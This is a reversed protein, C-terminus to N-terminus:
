RTPLATVSPFLSTISKLLSPFATLNESDSTLDTPLTELPTRPIRKGASCLTNDM